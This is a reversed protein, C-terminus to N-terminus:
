RRIGIGDHPLGVARRGPPRNGQGRRPNRLLMFDIQRGLARWPQALGARLLPIKSRIHPRLGIRRALAIRRRIRPAGNGGGAQRLGIAYRPEPRRLTIGDCREPRNRDLGRRRQCTRDDRREIAPEGIGHLGGRHAPEARADDLDPLDRGIGAAAHVAIGVGMDGFVSKAIRQIDCTEREGVSPLNRHLVAPSARRFLLAKKAVHLGRGALLEGGHQRRAGIGIVVIVDVDVQHAAGALAHDALRGRDRALLNGRPRRLAIGVSRALRVRDSRQPAAFRRPM